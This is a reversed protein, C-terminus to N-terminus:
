DLSPASPTAGLLQVIEGEDLPAVFECGFLGDGVWAVRAHREAGFPLRVRLMTGVPVPLSLRARVGCRSADLVEVSMAIRASARCAVPLRQERRQDDFVARTAM